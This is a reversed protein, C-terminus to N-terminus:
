WAEPLSSWRVVVWFRVNYKYKGAAAGCETERGGSGSVGGGEFGGGGGAGGKYKGAEASGGLGLAAPQTHAHVDTDCHKDREAPSQTPPQTHTAVTAVTAACIASRALALRAVLLLNPVLLHPEEVYKQVVYGLECIGREEKWGGRRIAGGGEGGAGGQEPCSAYVGCLGDLLSIGRGLAGTVPKVLWVNRRLLGWQMEPAHTRLAAL